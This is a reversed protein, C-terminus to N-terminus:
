TVFSATTGAPKGGSISFRDVTTGAPRGSSTGFGKGVTTGAPRGGSIGFGQRCDPVWLGSTGFWVM